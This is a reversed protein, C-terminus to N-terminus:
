EPPMRRRMSMAALRTTVALDQEEVLRGGAEIRAAAVLHPVEHAGDGGLARRHQQGRLVQVLGVAEGLPQGDDVVSADDGFAGAALQLRRDPPRAKCTCSASLACRSGRLHMTRLTSPSPVAPRRPCSSAAFTSAHRGPARLRQGRQGRPPMPTASNATPWGLRSSTNKASVPLGAAVVRARPLPMLSTRSAVLHSCHRAAGARLGARERRDQVSAQRAISLILCTGKWSNSTVTIGIM